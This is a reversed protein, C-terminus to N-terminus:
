HSSSRCRARSSSTPSNRRPPSRSAAPSRRATPDRRDRRPVEHLRDVAGHDAPRRARGRLAAAGSGQRRGAAASGPRPPRNGQHGTRLREQRALHLRLQREAAGNGGAGEDFGQQPNTIDSGTLVPDDNLVYFSNPATTPSRGAPAKWRARRCSCRAPTSACRRRSPARGATQLRRRLPETRNGRAPLDARRGQLADKRAQHRDPVLQRLPLREGARAHLRADYTTSTAACHDAPTQRRAAGGPVRAARRSAAPARRRRTAPSRRRRDAGPKGDPGIM